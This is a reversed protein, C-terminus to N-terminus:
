SKSELLPALAEEVEADPAGEAVRTLAVRLRPEACAEAAVRLRARGPQDLESLALAAGARTTPPAAADDVVRWLHERDLRTERYHRARALARVERLWREAPRGGPAVLAETGSTGDSAVFASRAEEIREVLVDRLEARHAWGGVTLQLPRGRALRVLIGNPEKPRLEAIARYSVFRQEGLRRVLIGDSGVDVRASLRLFAVVLTASLLASWVVESVGLAGHLLDSAAVGVVVGWLAVAGVALVVQRRGGHIASFTAIAEGTGQGLATLLARAKEESELQVDVSLARRLMVRVVPSEPALLFASAIRAREVVVTDGVRLGSADAHVIGKLSSRYARWAFAGVLWAALGQEVAVSWGPAGVWMLGLSAAFLALAGALLALRPRLVEGPGEFRLNV